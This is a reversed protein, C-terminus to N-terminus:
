GAVEVRNRGKDKAAYLAMDASHILDAGTLGHEPFGAVGVSVTINGLHLGHYSVSLQRIGNCLLEARRLTDRQSADTLIVVFEEGGYRCAIDEARTQSQLFKGLETLVLDGAQHGYTDNYDKFHDIDMMVFGLSRKYRAARRLERDVTEEMYRRNFLNTLPDRLSQMRLDERLRLNVLEQAALRALSRALVEYVSIPEAPAIRLHLMGLMEQGGLLPICLTSPAQLWDAQGTIHQCLPGGGSEVIHPKNRRVAWCATTLFELEGQPLAGWKAELKMLNKPKDLLYLGGLQNEFLDGAYKEVLPFLDSEETCGMIYEGLQNLIDIERNRRELEGVKRRIQISAEHAAAESEKRPHIDSVVGNIRLHGAESRDSTVAERLWRYSGDPQQLRYEIEYSALGETLRNNLEIVQPYDRPHVLDMWNQSDPQLLFDVPWGSVKEMSPSMYVTKWTDDAQVDASWIGDSVSTMLRELEMHAQERAMEAQKREDIDTLVGDMTASGDPNHTVLVSERVWRIAGDPLLIRYEKEYHGGTKIIESLRPGRGKDEPHVIEHWRSQHKELFWEPSRGTIREIVPSVYQPTSTGDPYRVFRFLCDSVSATMRELESRAAQLAAETDKLRTIDMSIIQAIRPQGPQSRMLVAAENFWVTQGSRSTLPYEYRLVEGEHWDGMLLADIREADDKSVIRYWLLPDTQWEEPSYGLIDSVQPSVYLQKFPNIQTVTVMAPLGEVLSRYRQEAQHVTEDAQQNQIAAGLLAAATIVVEGELETWVREIQCDEVVIFGWWTGYTHIPMVLLSLSNQAQWFAREKAPLKKVLLNISEGMELIHALRTFVGKGLPVSQHGPKGIQSETGASCWEFARTTALVNHATSHNEYVSIRCAELSSGLEALLESLKLRWDAGRLFTQAYHSLRELILDRRRLTEEAAVQESIDQYLFYLAPKGLYEVLIGRAEIWFIVGDRRVLRLRAGPTDTDGELRAAVRKWLLDRDEPHFLQEMQQRDMRCMEEVTYGTMQCTKPNAFLVRDEQYVVLGVLSTEVMLRYVEPLIPGPVTQQAPARRRAPQKKEVLEIEELAAALSGKVQSVFM